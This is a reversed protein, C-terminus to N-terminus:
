IVVNLLAARGETMRSTMQNFAKINELTQKHFQMSIFSEVKKQQGSNHTEGFKLHKLELNCLQGSAIFSYHIEDGVTIHVCGM